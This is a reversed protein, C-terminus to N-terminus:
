GELWKIMTDVDSVAFPDTECNDTFGDEVFMQEVVGDNVVMSYRWSRAGFGLNRKEVLFGMMRTFDANGDPLPKVKEIGLSNFWANMTFSDNVSICYVDDIGLARLKEYNAEFGPLHTSSCTPTFAGPLSFLAIRRGAFIDRSTVDMWEFGPMQDTKQRTKFVVEPVRIMFQSM